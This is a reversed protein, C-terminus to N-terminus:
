GSVKQGGGMQEMSVRGLSGTAGAIGISLELQHFRRMIVCATALALRPRRQLGLRVGGVWGLDGLM